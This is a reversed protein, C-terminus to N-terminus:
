AVEWADLVGAQTFSTFLLPGPNSCVLTVTTTGASVPLAATVAVDTLYPFTSTTEAQGAGYTTGAVRIDCTVIVGPSSPSGAGVNVNATAMLTGAFTSTVSAAAVPAGDVPVLPLVSASAGATPGPAGQPGTAGPPGGPGSAGGPGQAGRPGAPGQPGPQAAVGSLARQFAAESPFQVVTGTPCQRAVTTDVVTLQRGPTTWCATLTSARSVTTHPHTAASVAVVGAAAVVVPGAFLALTRRARAHISTM